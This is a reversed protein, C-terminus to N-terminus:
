GREFGAARARRKKAQKSEALMRIKGLKSALM